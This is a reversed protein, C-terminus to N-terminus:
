GSSVPTGCWPAPFTPPPAASTRGSLKAASIVGTSGSGTLVPSPLGHGDWAGECDRGGVGATSGPDLGIQLREGCRAGMPHRHEDRQRGLARDPHRRDLLQRRREHELLEVGNEAVDADVRGLGPHEERARQDLRDGVVEFRVRHREDDVGDHDRAGPRLQELIVGHACEDATEERERGDHGRIQQLRLCEGAGIRRAALERLAQVVEARRCHDDGAAVAVVRDVMEEVAALVDLNGDCAMVDRRRVTGSTRM